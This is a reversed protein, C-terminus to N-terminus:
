LGFISLLSEFASNDEKELAKAFKKGAILSSLSVKVVSEVEEKTYETGEDAIALYSSFASVVADFYKQEAKIKDAKRKSAAAKAAEAAKRAAEEKKFAEEKAKKEADVEKQVETIEKCFADFLVQPDGGNMLHSYMDNKNIM